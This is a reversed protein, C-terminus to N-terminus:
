KRVKVSVPSTRPQNLENELRPLGAECSTSASARPHPKMESQLTEATDLAVGLGKCLINDYTTSEDVSLEGGVLSQVNKKIDELIILPAECKVLEIFLGRGLYCLHVNCKYLDNLHDTSLTYLVSWIVGNHLHVVAHKNFLMCLGCLALIDGKRGYSISDTLNDFTLVRSALYKSACIEFNRCNALM